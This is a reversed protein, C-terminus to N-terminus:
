RVGSPLWTPFIKVVSLSLLWVDFMLLGWKSKKSKKHFSGNDCILGCNGEFDNLKIQLYM